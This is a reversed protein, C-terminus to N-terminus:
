EGTFTEKFDLADERREGLFLFWFLMAEGFFITTFEGLFDALMTLEGPLLALSATEPSFTTFIRTAEGNFFREGYKLLGELEELNM